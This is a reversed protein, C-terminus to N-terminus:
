YDDCTWHCMNEDTTSLDYSHGTVTAHVCTGPNRPDMGYGSRCFVCHGVEDAACILCRAEDDCSYLGPILNRYEDCFLYDDYCLACEYEDCPFCGPHGSAKGYGAACDQCSGDNASAYNDCHELEALPTKNIVTQTPWNYVNVPTPCEGGDPTAGQIM